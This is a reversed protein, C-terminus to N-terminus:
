GSILRPHCFLRDENESRMGQDCSFGFAPKPMDAPGTVVVDGGGYSSANQPRNAQAQSPPQQSLAHPVNRQQPIHFPTPASPNAYQLLANPTSGSYSLQQAQNLYSAQGAANYPPQQAAYATPPTFNTFQQGAQQHPQQVVNAYQQNPINTYSPQLQMNAHNPPLNSNTYSPPQSTNTYSPPLTPNPYNPNVAVNTYPQSTPQASPLASNAFPTQQSYYGSNPQTAQTGSSPQQHNGNTGNSNPPTQQGQQQSYSAAYPHDGYGPISSNMPNPPAYPNYM